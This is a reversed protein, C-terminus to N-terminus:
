RNKMVGMILAKKLGKLGSYKLFFKKKVFGKVFGFPQHIMALLM